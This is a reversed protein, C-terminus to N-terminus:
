RQCDNDRDGGAAVTEVDMRYLRVHNGGLSEVFLFPAAGSFTGPVEYLKTLSM